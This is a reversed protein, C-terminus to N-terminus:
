FFILTWLNILPGLIIYELISVIIPLIRTILILLLILFGYKYLFQIVKNENKCFLSLLFFGDLPYIPLLNFVFFIFNLIMTYYCFNQLFLFFTVNSDLLLTLTYFLTFIISVIFNGLIGSLCVKVVSKNGNKFALPNIPVPKSWGFGLLILFIFGTVDIHNFPNLSLRGYAKGTLDGEKNAIVAKSFDHITLALVLALIYAFFIFLVLPFEFSGFLTILFM